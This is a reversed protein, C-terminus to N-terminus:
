IIDHRALMAHVVCGAYGFLSTYAAAAHTWAVRVTHTIKRCLYKFDDKSAIMKDRFYKSLQKSIVASLERRFVTYGDEVVKEQTHIYCKYPYLYM